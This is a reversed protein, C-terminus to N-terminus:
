QRTIRRRDYGVVAVTFGTYCGVSVTDTSRGPGLSTGCAKNVCAVAEALFEGRAFVTVRNDSEDIMEVILERLGLEAIRPDSPWCVHEAM